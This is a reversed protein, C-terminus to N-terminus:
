FPKFNKILLYFLNTIIELHLAYEMDNPTDRSEVDLITKLDISTYLVM